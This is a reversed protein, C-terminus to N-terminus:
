KPGVFPLLSLGARLTTQEQNLNNVENRLSKLTSEFGLKNSYQYQVDSLFKTVAEKPPINNERAIENVTTSLYQLQNLGFGMTQLYYYRSLAQNHMSIMTEFYTKRNELIPINEQLYKYNLRRIELDLFENIVNEVDYQYQKLSNVLKALKSIDDVPIGYKEMELKIDSYWKLRSSTIKGDEVITNRLLEAAGKQQQLKEIQAKLKGIEEELKIKEDNKEKIYHAIKSFPVTKSFELLDALYSCINEPLIGIDQCRNYVDLIFSELADEKVGIRLMVTTIRFGLACQAATIGVKRMTVALERLEDAAAFGLNHRWENVINTVAGSSVANEAAIDNRPRGQLWQQIVLAKIHTPLGAPMLLIIQFVGM